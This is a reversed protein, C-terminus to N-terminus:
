KLWSEVIQPNSRIWRNANDYPNGGMQNWLLLQEMNDPSWKFNDLFKYVKPMDEKLGKRVLTHISEGSGWIKKPDDLFKLAWRGFKWHPTWGLVVIWKKKKIANSLEATMSVETGPILEFDELGYAPIVKERMITMMGSDSEIGIIKGNFEDYHDKIEEISDIKMYPETHQGDQAILWTSSVQPVVLGIKAGELNPGMDEFRGKHNEYYKTQGPLWSGVMADISGNSVSEYQKSVGMRKLICKVGLKKQLVAKVVNSSAIESSWDELAITVSKREAYASAGLWTAFVALCLLLVMPNRLWIKKV